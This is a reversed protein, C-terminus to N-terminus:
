IKFGLDMIYKKLWIQYKTFLGFLPSFNDFFNTKLVVARGVPTGPVSGAGLHEIDAARCACEGASSVCEEIGRRCFISGQLLCM